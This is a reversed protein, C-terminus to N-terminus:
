QVIKPGRENRVDRKQEALDRLAEERLKFRPIKGSAVRPLAENTRFLVHTPVKFSAAREAVWQRIYDPDSATVDAEIFAVIAEGREEDPIGVVHAQRVGDIRELIHEVEVPSVNIGRTKIMETSRSEFIFRGYSDFRGLDGTRFFGDSTFARKNLDPDKLYGETVYGRIEVLGVEGRAVAEGTLPDVIRVEWGPLVTGSTGLVVDEPDDAHTMILPGYSETLGYIATGRIVGLEHRALRKDDSNIGIFGKELCLKRREFSPHRTLARTLDGLGYYVTCRERELLELAVEPEFVEQLVVCAAHTWTAFLAHVAALGYFLPTALFSRDHPALDQREGINYNNEIVRGHQIPVCKPRATSGSTYLLLLDDSPTVAAEARALKDDSVRAGLELFASASIASALRHTRLEVLHDLDPLESVDLTEGTRPLNLDPTIRSLYAAYDNRRLSDVYFLVKAESHTLAYGLEDDKYWTNLPALVVGIRAAAVAVILWQPHNGALLAVRDGRAVGLALLAKSWAASEDLLEAFTTEEGDFSIAPRDPYRDALEAILLGITRALPAQITM